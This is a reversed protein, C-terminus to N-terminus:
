PTSLVIFPAKEVFNGLMKVTIRLLEMGSRM